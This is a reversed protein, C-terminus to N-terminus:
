ENQKRGERDKLWDKYWDEYKQGNPMTARELSAAQIYLRENTVGKAGSLKVEGLYAGELNAGELNAGELNAETLIADNLLAQSLDADSLIVGYLNTGLLLAGRLGARRMIAGYLNADNLDAGSLNAGSLKVEVLYAGELYAGELNAGELNAGGLNTETLFAHRLYAGSLDVEDLGLVLRDKRVLGSDHLFRVVSGKRRSDLRGLVTLTRARAVMSLSDGLQARHLPRDKDTLLASMQDLYSQLAADQARQDELDLEHVVQAAQAKSERQKRDNEAQREREDQRQNLWYVGLALATPVILIKIWDWLTVGYSYGIAVLIGLVIGIRIAWLWQGPTPRWDPVLLRMLDEARERPTKEPEVQYEEERCPSTHRM